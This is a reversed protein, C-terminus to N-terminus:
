CRHSTGEEYPFSMNVIDINNLTCFLLVHSLFNDWVNNVKKWNSFGDGVLSSLSVSKNAQDFLFCSFYYVKDKSPSYELWPFQKFWIYQFRRNQKGMVSKPYEALKPQYPDYNMYARRIEDCQNITYECIQKRLGPDREIDLEMPEAVHSMSPTQFDPISSEVNSQENNGKKKKEFFSFITKGKKNPPQHHEM